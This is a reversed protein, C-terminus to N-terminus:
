RRIESTRRWTWKETATVPACRYFHFLDGQMQAFNWERHSVEFLTKADTKSTKVEVYAVVGGTTRDQIVLDYCQGSEEGQNLWVVQQGAPVVDVLYRNSSGLSSLIERACVVSRNVCLRVFAGCRFTFEEGWRGISMRTEETLAGALQSAPLPALTHRHSRNNPLEEVSFQGREVCEAASASVAFEDRGGAGRGGGGGRGDRGDVPRAGHVADHLSTGTPRDEWSFERREDTEESGEVDMHLESAREPEVALAVWPTETSPLPPVSMASTVLRDVSELSAGTQLFALTTAMFQKMEASVGGGGDSALPGIVVGVLEAFFEPPPLLQASSQSSADCYFLDAGRLLAVASISASLKSAHHESNLEYHATLLDVTLVRIDAPVHSIWAAHTDPRNVMWRQVFVLMTRIHQTLTTDMVAGRAEDLRRDAVDVIRRIGLSQFMFKLSDGTPPTRTTLKGCDLPLSLISSAVGGEHLSEEVARWDAAAEATLPSKDTVFFLSEGACVGEESLRVWGTPTPLRAHTRLLKMWDEPWASQANSSSSAAASAGRHLAGIHAFIRVARAADNRAAASEMAGLCLHVGPQELMGLATFFGHLSDPFHLALTASAATSCVEDTPDNWVVRSLSLYRLKVPQQTPEATANQPVAILAHAQFAAVIQATTDSSAAAAGMHRDLERYINTLVHLSVARTEGSWAQLHWLLSDVSPATDILPTVGLAALARLLAAQEWGELAGLSTTDMLKVHTEFGYEERTSSYAAMSATSSDLFRLGDCPCGWAAGGQLPIVPVDLLPRLVGCGEADDLEDDDDDDAEFRSALVDGHLVARRTCRLEEVCALCRLAAEAAAGAQEQSHTWGGSEAMRRLMATAGRTSLRRVGLSTLVSRPAAELVEDAVYHYTTDTDM